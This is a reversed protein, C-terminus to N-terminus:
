FFFNSYNRAHVTMHIWQVSTGIQCLNFIYFCKIYSDNFGSASAQKIGIDCLLGRTVQNLFHPPILMWYIELCITISVILNLSMESGLIINKVPRLFIEESLSFFIDFQNSFFFEFKTPIIVNHKQYPVRLQCPIKLLGPAHEQFHGAPRQMQGNFTLVLYCFFTNIM